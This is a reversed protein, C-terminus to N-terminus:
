AGGRLALTQVPVDVGQRTQLAVRQHSTFLLAGGAHV